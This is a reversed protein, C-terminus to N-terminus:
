GRRARQSRTASKLEKLLKRKKKKLSPVGRLGGVWGLWFRRPVEAWSCGATLLMALIREGFSFGSGARLAVLTGEDASSSSTSSGSSGGRGGELRINNGFRQIVASYKVFGNAEVLSLTNLAYLSKAFKNGFNM